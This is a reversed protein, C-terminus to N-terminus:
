IEPKGNFQAGEAQRPVGQPSSETNSEKKKKKIWELAQEPSPLPLESWYEQRPFGM